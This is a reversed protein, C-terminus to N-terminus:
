EADDGDGRMSDILRPLEVAAPGRLNLDCLGDLSTPEPNVQILMAGRQKGLRPTPDRAFLVARRLCAEMCICSRRPAPESMFITWTKRSSRSERDGQRWSQSRVTVPTLSPACCRWGAGNIGPGCSTPIAGSPARRPSNRSASGSGCGPARTVSPRFAVTPPCAPAQSSSSPRQPGSGSVCHHPLSCSRLIRRPRSQVIRECRFPSRGSHHRLAASEPREDRHRAPVCRDSKRILSTGRM